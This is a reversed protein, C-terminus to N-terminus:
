GSLPRSYQPTSGCDVVSDPTFTVGFLHFTLDTMIHDVGKVNHVSLSGRAAKGM